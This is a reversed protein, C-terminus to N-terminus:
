RRGSYHPASFLPDSPRCDHEWGLASRGSEAQTEVNLHLVSWGNVNGRVCSLKAALGGMGMGM